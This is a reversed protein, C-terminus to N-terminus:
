QGTASPAQGALTPAQGRRVSQRFMSPTCGFAQRFAATFHSHSSFGVDLALTTLDSAHPLEVLARSLRLQTLYRHLSAGDGRRFVHTLHAPSAGVARGIDALRIPSGIEADPIAKTKRILRATSPGSPMLGPTDDALASRLLTLVAEDAAMRDVES